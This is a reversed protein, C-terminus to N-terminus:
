EPPCENKEVEMEWVWVRRDVWGGVMGRGRKGVGVMMMGMIVSRATKIVGRQIATITPTMRPQAQFGLHAKSGFCARWFSRGGREGLGGFGVANM